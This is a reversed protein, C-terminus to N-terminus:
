DTITTPADLMWDVAAAAHLATSDFLPLPSGPDAPDLLLCIETCGLIVAQAGADALAQVARRYFDRSEPRVFGRCLEEYIVRHVEARVPADPVVLEIGHRRRM